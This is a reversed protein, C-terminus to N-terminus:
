KYIIRILHPPQNVREHQDFRRVRRRGVQHGVALRIRLGEDGDVGDDM